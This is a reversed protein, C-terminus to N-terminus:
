GASATSCSVRHPLPNDAYNLLSRVAKVIVEGVAYTIIGLIVAWIISWIIAPMYARGLYPMARVQAAGSPFLSGVMM